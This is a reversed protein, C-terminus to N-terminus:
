LLTFQSIDKWAYSIGQIIENSDPHRARIHSATFELTYRKRQPIVLSIDKIHLLAPRDDDVATAVAGNLSTGNTTNSITNISLAAV